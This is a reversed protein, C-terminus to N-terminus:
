HIQIKYTYQMVTQQIYERDTKRGHQRIFTNMLSWEMNPLSPGEPDGFLFRKSSSTLYSCALHVEQRGVLLTLPCFVAPLRYLYYFHRLLTSNRTFHLFSSLPWVTPVASHWDQSGYSLQMDTDSDQMDTQPAAPLQSLLSASVASPRAAAAASDSESQDDMPVNQLMVCLSWV